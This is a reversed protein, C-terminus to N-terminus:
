GLLNGVVMVWDGVCVVDSDGFSVFLLLMDSEVKFVVIDINLDKGIVIVLLEEGFFFEVLIEDVGEIVYNNIVVFGDEFIM